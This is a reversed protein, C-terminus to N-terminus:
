LGRVLGRPVIQFHPSSTTRRHKRHNYGSPISSMPQSKGHQLGKCSVISRISAACCTYQGSACQQYNRVLGVTPFAASHRMASAHAVYGIRRHSQAHIQQTAASCIFAIYIASNSIIQVNMQQIISAPAPQVDHRRVAHPRFM